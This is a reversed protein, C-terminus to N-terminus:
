HVRALFRELRREQEALRAAYDDLRLRIRAVHEDRNDLLLQLRAELWDVDFRESHGCFARLGVDALLADNKAAYSLSVAPTGVKLACVLNHFRTVVAVDVAAMQAMVDHLNRAPAYALAAAGQESRQAVAQRLDEVAKADCDEGIILRVCIGRAQMRVTFEALKGIYARYVSGDTGSWGRYWMVGLGVCVPQGPRPPPRQPTPLAFALDPFVDGAVTQIGHRVAFEHSVQDRFSRYGALRAASVMFFRSLPHRIPGAGISAMGLRCGALRAAVSWKLVVYPVGSPAEGFDDLFGTGPVLVADFGRSISLARAPGLLRHPLRLLLDNLRRLPGPRLEPRTWGVTRLRLRPDVSEPRSCICCLQADPVIRRLAAVMAELSGDNGLNGAGFSGFLAIRLPRLASGAAQAGAGPVSPAIPAAPAIRPLEAPVSAM